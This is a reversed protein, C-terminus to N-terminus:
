TVDWPFAEIPMQPNQALLQDFEIMLYATRNHCACFDEAYPELQEVRAHIIDMDAGDLTLKFAEDHIEKFDQYIDNDFLFGADEWKRLANHWKTKAARVKAVFLEPALGRKKRYFISFLFLNFLNM